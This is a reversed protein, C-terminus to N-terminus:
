KVDNDVEDKLRLIRNRRLTQISEYEGYCQTVFNQLLQNKSTKYKQQYQALQNAACELIKTYKYFKSDGSLIISLYMRIITNVTAIRYNHITNYTMCSEARFLVILPVNQYKIIIHDYIFYNNKYINSISFDKSGYSINKIMKLAVGRLNHTNVLLFIQPNINYISLDFANNKQELIFKVENPGFLVYESNELYLYIYEIIITKKSNEITMNHSIPTEKILCNANPPYKEYFLILRKFVKGWRHSDNSQALLMHLSLRLFEINVIRIGLSGIKSNKSLKKFATPTVESIDLLQVGEAFVKFTNKHFAESVSVAKFNRKKLKDAIYNAKKHAGITFVDIDPLTKEKYIKLNKPLLENIATGGYLLIKMNKIIKITEVYLYNYDNYEIKQLEEEKKEVIENIKEEVKNVTDQFAM